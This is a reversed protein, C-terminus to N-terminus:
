AAMSLAAFKTENFVSKSGMKVVNAGHAELAKRFYDNASVVEKFEYSFARGNQLLRSSGTSYTIFNIKGSLISQLIDVVATAEGEKFSFQFGSKSNLFYGCAHAAITWDGITIYDRAFPNIVLSRVAETISLTNDSGLRLGQMWIRQAGKSESAKDCSHQTSNPM